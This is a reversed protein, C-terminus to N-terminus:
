KGSRRFSKLCTKSLQNTMSLSCIVLRSLKLYSVFLLVFHAVFFRLLLYDVKSLDKKSLVQTFLDHM